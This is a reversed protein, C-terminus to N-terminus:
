FEIDSATEPESNSGPPGYVASLIASYKAGAPLDRRRAMFQSHDIVEFLLKRDEDAMQQRATAIRDELRIPRVATPRNDEIQQRQQVLSIQRKVADMEDRLFTSLEASSPAFAKPAGDIEGRILKIVVTEIAHRTCRACAVLYSEM